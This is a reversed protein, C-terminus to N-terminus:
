RAAVAVNMVAGFGELSVPGEPAGTVFYRALCGASAGGMIFPSLIPEVDSRQPEDGPADVWEVPHPVAEVYEQAISDGTRVARHVAVEWEVDTVYRGITVQLGKMGIAEKLVFHNREEVLLNPMSTTRGHWETARDGVVRTWPLYRRALRHDDETMWPQGESVWGMVKKNALLYSSQTALLLCGADLAKKVPAWDIGLETWERTTFHRLGVRYRLRGPDGLGDLLDEPEFFEAAFGRNRLYSVEEDFYRASRVGGFLDRVSGVIAVAPPSGMQKCLDGFFRARAEFPLYSTFPASGAGGFVETWTTTALHTQVANGVAGSVNFELFKVGDAAIVADPRAMCDSHRLELDDDDLFLPYEGFDAGLAEIRATRTPGAEIVARRLLDLLARGAVFMEEYTARPLVLPHLCVPRQRFPVDRMGFLLREAVEAARRVDSM